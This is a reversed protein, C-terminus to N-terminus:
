LHDTNKFAEIFAQPNERTHFTRVGSLTHLYIYGIQGETWRSSIDLISNLYYNHSGATIKDEYLKLKDKHEVQKQKLWEIKKEIYIIELEAVLSEDYNSPKPPKM